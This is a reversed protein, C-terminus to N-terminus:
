RPTDFEQYNKRKIINLYSVEKNIKFNSIKSNHNFVFWKTIDYIKLSDNYVQTNRIEIRPTNELEMIKTQNKAINNAQISIFIGTIAVIIALSIEFFIKNRELFMRFEIIKNKM